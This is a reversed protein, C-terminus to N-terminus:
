GSQQAVHTHTHTKYEFRLVSSPTREHTSTPTRMAQAWRMWKGM